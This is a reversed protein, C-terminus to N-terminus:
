RMDVGWITTAAGNDVFEFIRGPAKILGLSRWVIEQEFAGDEVTITGHDHWTHGNDDSTRLTIDAGSLAPEGLSLTMYVENCRETQRMQIPVGGRITREFESTGTGDIQDDVGVDPDLVWLVGTSDDGGVINTNFGRGVSTAGMALWNQGLQPAWTPRSHSNWESWQGTTLDYVLTAENGLRLVYFDHGDLSFTWARLHPNDMGRRVLVMVNIDSVDVVDRVKTMVRPQIQTVQCEPTPFNYAALAYLQTARIRDELVVHAQVIIDTVRVEPTATM